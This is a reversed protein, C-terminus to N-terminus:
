LKVVSFRLSTTETYKAEGTSEAKAKAEKFDDGLQLVRKPYEWNKLRVSSFKGVATEVKEEGKELMDSLIKERLANKHGELLKIRSDLTAYEDYITM